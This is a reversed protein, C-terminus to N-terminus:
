FFVERGDHFPQFTAVEITTKFTEKSLEGPLSLTLNIKSNQSSLVTLQYM